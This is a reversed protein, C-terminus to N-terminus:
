VICGRVRGHYVWVCGRVHVRVYLLSHVQGLRPDNFISLKTGAFQGFRTPWNGHLQHCDNVRWDTLDSLGRDSRLPQQVPCCCKTGVRVPDDFLWLSFQIYEYMYRNICVQWYYEYMICIYIHMNDIYKTLPQFVEKMIVLMCIYLIYMHVYM